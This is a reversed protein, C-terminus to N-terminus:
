SHLLGAAAHHHRGPSLRALRGCWVRPLRQHQAGRGVAAPGEPRPRSLGVMLPSPKAFVLFSTYYKVNFKLLKNTVYQIYCYLLILMDHVEGEM